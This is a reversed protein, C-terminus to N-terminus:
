LSEKRLFKNFDETCKRCLDLTTVSTSRRNNRPTHLEISVFDNDCNSTFECRDCTTSTITQRM